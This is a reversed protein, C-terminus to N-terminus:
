YLHNILKKINNKINGKTLSRGIVVGSVKNKFADKPTMIRAQDNTNDGPLRIGPTIILLNKYKKRIMNAEKASCVIGDCGSKKVIGAQKLVLQDVTKTHGIEKLSKNNLSTLVTVGLVKLNKNIQKTKEKIAKLMNLGGNVHVTIYKCKKLDKLSDVASLATQPIDNIKLDLWFDSKYKELFKRGNKSYFFQLGFKPIIKLKKSNINKLIKKIQDLNSTDCAIFIIKNKM